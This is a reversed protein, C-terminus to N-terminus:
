AGAAEEGKLYRDFWDLIVRFRQVRHVPSGSRSLEHSEAPFRVLEVDKKQLRLTVFLHEAQEIACRLDEESHLILLPTHINTAYTTPSMKLFPEIDEFPFAGIMEKFYPGIDSSGYDSLWNNVARESCAAAFLDTHSVIWSTMFGGYSGGVV